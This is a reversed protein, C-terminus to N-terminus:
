HVYIKAAITDSTFSRSGQGLANGGSNMGIARAVPGNVMIMPGAFMTTCLIGHLGFEETLAADLAALVVPMYEPKCGAMVANIAVKEVTCPVLDPPILGLEEDPRRNTGRLMRLVREPTPPVVPLGDSWGREFCAEMPDEADGTTIQRARLLTSGFRLELDEAIGPELTKSGCGPRMAPLEEGLGPVGSIRQWDERHWGYTREVEQGNARRILTPVFEINLRFSVELSADHTAGPVGAAFGPDDQSYIQVPGSDALTQLLPEVLECTPCDRKAVVILGDNPLATM